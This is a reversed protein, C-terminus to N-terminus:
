TYTIQPSQGIFMCFVSSIDMLYVSITSNLLGLGLGDEDEDADEQSHFTHTHM